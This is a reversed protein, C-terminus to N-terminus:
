HTNFNAVPYDGPVGWPLSLRIARTGVTMTYFRGPNGPRYVAYDTRGDGDYDGQTIFDTASVGWLDGVVTTGATGSPEFEWKLFGGEDRVVMLDTKGDDDYDGPAVTDNRLGFMETSIGATTLRKWFRGNVGNADARQVVFDNKSDGDYDGPAPTDGNQGWTVTNFGGGANLPRWFWFSQDGPNAGERYLAIDAKGDGDYDGTVTADDGTQGFDEFYMTDTLSRVIFFKGPSGPRFVGFDDQGDGDFDEVFFQDSATGWDTPQTPDGDQFATFWRIQGSAGGGINRIVVFDTKGDANMDLPADNAPPTPGGGGITVDQIRVTYPGDGTGGNEGPANYFSDIFLYLPVNLPLANVDAASLTEAAPFFTDDAGVICNDADADPGTGAPCMIGTSGNLVYISLDYTSSTTSVRIQPSAGRATLTFSYIHDPGLVQSYIGNCSQPIFGVTNNAGTTTGSDTFPAAATYTGPPIPNGPCNDGGALVELMNFQTKQGPLRYESQRRLLEPKSCGGKNLKRLLEAAQKKVREPVPKDSEGAFIDQAQSGLVTAVGAFLSFYGLKKRWSRVAAVDFEPTQSTQSGGLIGLRKLDANRVRM